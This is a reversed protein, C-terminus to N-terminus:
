QKTNLGKVFEVDALLMKTQPVNGCKNRFSAESPLQSQHIEFIRLFYALFTNDQEKKQLLLPSIHGLSVGRYYLCPHEDYM